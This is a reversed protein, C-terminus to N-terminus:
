EHSMVVKVSVASISKPSTKPQHTVTNGRCRPTYYGVVKYLWPGANPIHRHFVAGIYGHREGPLQVVSDFAFEFISIMLALPNALSDSLTEFAVRSVITRDSGRGSILRQEARRRIKQSVM